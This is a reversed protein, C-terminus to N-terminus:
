ARSGRSRPTLVPSPWTGGPTFSAARARPSLWPWTSRRISSGRARGVNMAPRRTAVTILTPTAVIAAAIPAPPSPTNMKRPMAVTFLQRIRAPARGEAAM